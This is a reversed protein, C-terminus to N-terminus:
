VLAAGGAIAGAATADLRGIWGTASVGAGHWGEVVVFGAVAALVGNRALTRWSL